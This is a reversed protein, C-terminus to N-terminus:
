PPGFMAILAWQSGKRFEPGLRRLRSFSLHCLFFAIAGLLTMPVILILLILTQPLLAIATGSTTTGPVYLAAFRTLILWYLMGGSIEAGLASWAADSLSRVGWYM